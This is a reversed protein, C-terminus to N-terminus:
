TNLWCTPDEMLHDGTYAFAMARCGRCNKVFKCNHCKGKLNEFNRHLWMFDSNYWIEFIGQKRINGISIPLRSCPYLDGNPMLCIGSDFDCVGSEKKNVLCWLPRGKLIKPKKYKRSLEELKYFLQKVDSSSLALNKLSEGTGIPVFLSFRVENVKLNKLIELIDDVDGINKKNVVMQVSVKLGNKCLIKVGNIAKKFSGKGRIADHNKEIGDISIQIKKVNYKKLRAALQDDILTGNSAIHIEKVTMKTSLYHLLSFFQPYLLPEGGTITIILKKGLSKSLQEIKLFDKKLTQLVSEGIHEKFYCHKCRLNCKKTIHWQLYFSSKLLKNDNRQVRRSNKLIGEDKLRSLLDGVDKGFKQFILTKRVVRNEL